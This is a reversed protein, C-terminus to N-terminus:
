RRRGKAKAPGAAKAIGAAADPPEGRPRLERRERLERFGQELAVTRAAQEDLRRLVEQWFAEEEQLPPLQSPQAVDATSPEPQPRWDVQFELPAGGAWSPSPGSVRSPGASRGDTAGPGHLRVPVLMQVDWQQEETGPFGRGQVCSLRLTGHPLKDEPRSDGRPEWAVHVQLEALGGWSGSRSSSGHETLRLWLRTDAEGADYFPLPVDAFAVDEGGAEGDMGGPDLRRLELRAAPATPDKTWELGMPVVEQRGIERKLREENKQAAWTEKFAETIQGIPMIFIVGRLMGMAAVMAICVPTAPVDHKMPMSSQMNTMRETVWWLAKPLSSFAV